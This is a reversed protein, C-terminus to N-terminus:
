EPQAGENFMWADLVPVVHGGNIYDFVEDDPDDDRTHGFVIAASRADAANGVYTGLKLEDMTTQWEDQIAGNLVLAGPDGFGWLNVACGLPNVIATLMVVQGKDKAFGFEDFLLDGFDVHLLALVYTVLDRPGKTHTYWTVSQGANLHEVVAAAAVGDEAHQGRYLVFQEV